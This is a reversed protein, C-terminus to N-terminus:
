AAPLPTTRMKNLWAEFDGVFNKSGIHGCCMGRALYTQIGHSRLKDSVCTDEGVLEGNQPRIDFIWASEPKNEFGKYKESNDWLVRLARKSFRLFGTGLAMDPCTLLGTVPEVTISDPGGRARVNYREDQDTKKRVSAGVCDVPYALLRTFWEPEWTQDADIFVLDDFDHELAIKVLDNRANQVIADYALFLARLDIGRQICLRLTETLSNAYHVDVRGDHAPTGILVRRTAAM